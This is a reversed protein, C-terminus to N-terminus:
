GQFLPIGDVEAAGKNKWVNMFASKLGSDSVIKDFLNISNQTPAEQSVNGRTQAITVIADRSRKSIM